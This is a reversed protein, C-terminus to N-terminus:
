SWVLGNVDLALSHMWGADIDDINELYDSPTNMDGKLVGALTKAFLDPDTSGRGLVGYYDYGFANGGNPGCVWVSADNTLVLTHDEGGSIAIPLANEKWNAEVVNGVVIIPSLLAAIVKKWSLM